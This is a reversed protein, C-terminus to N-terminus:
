GTGETVRVDVHDLDTGLFALEVHGQRNVGDAPKGEDLQVVVDECSKGSRSNRTAALLDVGHKGVLRNQAVAAPLCGVPAEM